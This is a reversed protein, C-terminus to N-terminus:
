VGELNYFVDKINVYRKFYHPIELGYKPFQKPIHRGLDWNGCTLFICYRTDIFSNIWADFVNMQHNLSRCERFFKHNMLFKGYKHNVYSNFDYNRVFHNKVFLQISSVVALNTDLIVSSIETIENKGELDLVVIHKFNDM